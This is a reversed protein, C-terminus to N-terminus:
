PPFLSPREPKNLLRYYYCVTTFSVSDEDGRRQTPVEDELVCYIVNM